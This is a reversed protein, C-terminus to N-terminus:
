FAIKARKKLFSLRCYVFLYIVGFFLLLASFMILSFVGNFLLSMFLAWIIITGIESVVFAKSAVQQIYYKRRMRDGFYKLADKYNYGQKNIYEVGYIFTFIYNVLVLFLLIIVFIININLEGTNITLGFFSFYLILFSFINLFILVLLKRKERGTFIIWFVFLILLSAFVLSDKWSSKEFITQGFIIDASPSKSFSFRVFYVVALLFLVACVSLKLYDNSHDKEQKKDKQSNPATTKTPTKM